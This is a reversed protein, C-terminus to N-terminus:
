GGARPGFHAACGPVSATQVQVQVERESRALTGDLGLDDEPAQLPCAGPQGQRHARGPNESGRNAADQQAPNWATVAWHAWPM